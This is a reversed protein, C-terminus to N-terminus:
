ILAVVGVLSILTPCSLLVNNFVLCYKIYGWALNVLSAMYWKSFCDSLQPKNPLHWLQPFSGYGGGLFKLRMTILWLGDLKNMAM